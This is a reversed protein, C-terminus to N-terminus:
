PLRPHVRCNTHLYRARGDDFDYIAATQIDDLPDGSAMLFHTESVPQLEYRLRDPKGLIRAHMPNLDLTLYLKGDEDAVEYRTGPRTLGAETDM